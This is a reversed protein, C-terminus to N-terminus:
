PYIGRLKTAQAVRTVAEMLAATRLDVGRERSTALTRQFAGV